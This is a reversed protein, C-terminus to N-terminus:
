QHYHSLALSGLKVRLGGHSNIWQSDIFVSGSLAMNLTVKRHVLWVKCGAQFSNSLTLPNQVKLSFEWKLLVM